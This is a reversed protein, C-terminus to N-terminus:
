IFTITVDLDLLISNEWNYVTIDTRAQSEENNITFYEYKIIHM